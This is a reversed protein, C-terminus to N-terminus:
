SGPCVAKRFRSDGKFLEVRTSRLQWLSVETNWAEAKPMRMSSAIWRWATASMSPLSPSTMQDPIVGTFSMVSSTMLCDSFSSTEHELRQRLRPKHPVRHHRWAPCEHEMSWGRFSCAMFSTMWCKQEISLPSTLFSSWSIWSSRWLESMLMSLMPLMCYRHPRHRCLLSLPALDTQDIM